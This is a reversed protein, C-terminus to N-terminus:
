VKVVQVVDEVRFKAGEGLLSHPGELISRITTVCVGFTLLCPYSVIKLMAQSSLQYFNRCVMGIQRSARQAIKNVHESWGLTDSLWVGLYKFENVRELGVGDM